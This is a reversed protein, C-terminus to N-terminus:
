KKLTKYWCLPRQFAEQFWKGCAGVKENEYSFDVKYDVPCLAGAVYTDLRCQASPHSAQTVRVRTSDPKLYSPRKNRDLKGWLQSIKWSANMSRVCTEYGEDPFSIKCKTEAFSIDQPGPSSVEPNRWESWHPFLRRVCKATSYYDSQAEVSITGGKPYGGLLHGLEHCILTIFADESILSYRSLGGLIELRYEDGEREAFANVAGDNWDKKIILAGGRSEIIPAYHSYIFDIVRNFRDEHYGNDFETNLDARLLTPQEGWVSFSIFLFFLARM